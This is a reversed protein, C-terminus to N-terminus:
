ICSAGSRSARKIVTEMTMQRMDAIKQRSIFNREAEQGRRWHDHGKLELSIIHTQPSCIISEPKEETDKVQERFTKLEENM